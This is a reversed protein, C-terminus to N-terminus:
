AVPSNDRVIANWLLDIQDDTFRDKVVGTPVRKALARMLAADMQNSRAANERNSAVFLLDDRDMDALKKRAGDEVVYPVHLWRSLREVDGAEAAEADAAFLRRNFGRRAQSRSSRDRSSVMQYVVNEAQETLWGILLEPDTQRLREVLQTAVARATYGSVSTMADVLQRMETNFDREVM